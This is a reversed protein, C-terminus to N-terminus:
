GGYKKAMKVLQVLPRHAPCVFACLGCEHCAEPHLALADAMQDYEVCRGLLHVQINQPCAQTCRGCNVCTLNLETHLRDAAMLYVGHQLKTLPTEDTYQATGHMPGGAILRGGEPLSLGRNALLDRLRTGLPARLTVPRPLSDGTLTVTKHTFPRGSLADLAALANEVTLVGVGHSRYAQDVPIRIGTLRPIVVRKLRNRYDDPLGVVEVADGFTEAAWDRLSRSTLLWLKAQPEIETVRRVGDRIDDARARLLLEQNSITPEQHMALLVIHRIPPYADLDGECDMHGPTTWPTIVGGVRLLELRSASALDLGSQALTEEPALAPPSGRVIEVAPVHYGRATWVARIEDVRGGISAHICNGLESRGIVQNRAVEDGAQVTPRFLIRGPYELPIVVSEPDPLDVIEPDSEIRRPVRAAPPKLLDLLSM